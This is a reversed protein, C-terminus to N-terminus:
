DDDKSTRASNSRGIEVPIVDAGSSCCYASVLPMRSLTTRAIPCGPRACRRRATGPPRITSGVFATPATATPARVNCSPPANSGQLRCCTSSNQTSLMIWTSTPALKSNRVSSMPNGTSKSGDASVSTFRMTSFCTRSSGSANSRAFCANSCAAPSTSRESSSEATSCSSECSEPPLGRTSDIPASCKLVSVSSCTSAATLSCRLVSSQSIDSAPSMSESSLTSGSM